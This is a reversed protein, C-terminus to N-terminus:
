PGFPLSRFAAFLEARGTQGLLGPLAQVTADTVRAARARAYVVLKTFCFTWFPARPAAIVVTVCLTASANSSSGPLADAALHALALADSIRGLLGGTHFLFAM